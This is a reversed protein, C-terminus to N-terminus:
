KRSDPWHRRAKELHRLGVSKELALQREADKSAKEDTMKKEAEVQDRSKVGKKECSSCLCEPLDGLCSYPDSIADFKSANVYNPCQRGDLSGDLMGTCSYTNGSDPNKCRKCFLIMQLALDPFRCNMKRRTSCADCTIWVQPMRFTHM